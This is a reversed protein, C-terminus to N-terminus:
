IKTSRIVFYIPLGLLLKISGYCTLIRCLQTEQNCLPPALIGEILLFRSKAAFLITCYNLGNIHIMWIFWNSTLISIPNISQNKTSLSVKRLIEAIDHRSLFQFAVNKKGNKKKDINICIFDTAVSKQL